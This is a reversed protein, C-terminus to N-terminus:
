DSSNERGTRDLGPPTLGRCCVGGGMPCSFDPCCVGEGGRGPAMLQHRPLRTPRCSPEVLKQASGGVGRAAGKIIRAVKCGRIKGKGEIAGKGEEDCWRAEGGRGEGDGGTEDRGERAEM